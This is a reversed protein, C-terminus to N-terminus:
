SFSSFISMGFSNLFFISICITFVCFFIKTVFELFAYKTSTDESYLAAVIRNKLSFFFCFAPKARCSNCFCNKTAYCWMILLKRNLFLNCHRDDYANCDKQIEQHYASDTKRYKGPTTDYYKRFSTKSIIVIIATCSSFTLLSHSLKKDILPPDQKTSVAHSHYLIFESTKIASNTADPIIHYTFPSRIKHLNCVRIHHSIQLFIYM